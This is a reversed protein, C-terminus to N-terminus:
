GWGTLKPRDPEDEARGGRAGSFRRERRPRRGQPDCLCREFGLGMNPGARRSFRLRNERGFSLCAWFEGWNEAGHLRGAAGSDSRRHREARSLHVHGLRRGRCNKGLVAIGHPIASNARLELPDFGAPGVAVDTAPRGRPSAKPGRPEVLRLLVARKSSLGTKRNRAAREPPPGFAWRAPGATRRVAFACGM